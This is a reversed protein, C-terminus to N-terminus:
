IPDGADDFCSSRGFGSEGFFNRVFRRFFWVCDRRQDCFWPFDFFSRSGDSRIAQMTLALPGALVLSALSIASLAASFGFVIAGKTVSGRSILSLGRGM